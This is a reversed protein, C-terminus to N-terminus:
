KPLPLEEIADADLNESRIKAEISLVDSRTIPREAQANGRAVRYATYHRDTYGATLHRPLKGLLREDSITLDDWDPGAHVVAWYFAGAKSKSVGAALMGDYFMRHVDAAPEIRTACYWDHVVSADRYLGEFPGGMLSWLIQPISAGDLIAGAPVDWRNCNPGVFSFPKTLTMTRGDHSWTADVDGVFHATCISRHSEAAAATTPLATLAALAVLAHSLRFSM